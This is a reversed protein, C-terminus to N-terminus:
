VVCAILIIDLLKSEELCEDVQPTINIFERRSKTNFWLEKRHSKM